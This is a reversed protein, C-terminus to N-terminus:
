VGQPIMGTGNVQPGMGVNVQPVTGTGNVQPIMGVNVQPVTGTGNVQPITGVNVQPITGTGTENVQPVIPITPITTVNVQPIKPVVDMPGTVNQPITVTQTKESVVSQPSDMISLGRLQATKKEEANLSRQVGNEEIALAVISGDHCRKLIFGGDVDKFMDTTGPIPLANISNENANPRHQQQPMSVLGGPMIPPQVTSKNAAGSNIRNQVTKKKICQKCYQDSGPAGTQAVPDACVQGKKGGRQFQYVCKPANPDIPVKKRGGRRNPSPGTGTFYGPIHPMTTPMNAAQPLGAMSARPTFPVNFAECLEEPSCDFGKKTKLWDSLHSCVKSVYFDTIVTSFITQLDSTSM